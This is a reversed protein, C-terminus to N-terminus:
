PLWTDPYPQPSYRPINLSMYIRGCPMLPGRVMPRSINSQFASISHWHTAVGELTTSVTNKPMWDCRRSILVLKGNQIYSFMPAHDPVPYAPQIHMYAQMPCLPTGPFAALQILRTDWSAQMTKSCKLFVNFGSPPFLFTVVLSTITLSFIRSPNKCSNPYGSFDM